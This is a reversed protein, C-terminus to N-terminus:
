RKADCANSVHAVIPSGARDEFVLADMPQDQFTLSANPAGAAAPAAMSLYHGIHNPQFPGSIGHNHDGEWFFVLHVDEPTVNPPCTLMKWVAAARRHSMGRGQHPIVWQANPIYTGTQMMECLVDQMSRQIGATTHVEAFVMCRDFINRTSLVQRNKLSGAGWLAHESRGTRVDNPSINHLHITFWPKGSDKHCYGIMGHWTHLKNQRLKRCTIRGDTAGPHAGHWGLAERLMKSFVGPANVCVRVVGQLHLNAANGGKETAICGALCERDVLACVRNREELSVQGKKRVVTVSIEMPNGTNNAHPVKRPRGGKNKPPPPPQPTATNNPTSM